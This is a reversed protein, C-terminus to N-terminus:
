AERKSVFGRFVAKVRCVDFFHRAADAIGIKPGTGSRPCWEVNEPGELSGQLEFYREMFFVLEEASWLSCGAYKQKVREACDRDIVVVVLLDGLEAFRAVIYPSPPKKQEGSAGSAASVKGHREFRSAIAEIASVPM